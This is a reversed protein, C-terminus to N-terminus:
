VEFAEEETLVKRRRKNGRFGLIGLRRLDDAALVGKRTLDEGQSFHLNWARVKFSADIAPSKIHFHNPCGPERHRLSFSGKAMRAPLWKPRKGCLKCPNLEGGLLYEDRITRAKELSTLNDRILKGAVVVKYRTVNVPYSEIHEDQDCLNKERHRFDERLKEDLQDPSTRWVAGALLSRTVFADVEAIADEETLADLVKIEPYYETEGKRRVFFRYIWGRTKHRVPGRYRTFALKYGAGLASSKRRKPKGKRNRMKEMHKELCAPCKKNTSLQATPEGCTHCKPLPKVYPVLLEELNIPGNM